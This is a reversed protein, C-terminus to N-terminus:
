LLHPPAVHAVQGLTYPPASQSAHAVVRMVSKGVHELFHVKAVSQAPCAVATTTAPSDHTHVHLAVNPPADHSAHLSPKTPYGVHTRAGVVAGMVGDGGSGVAGGVGGGGTMTAVVAGGVTATVGDGVSTAVGDVSVGGGVGAGVVLAGVVGDGVCAATDDLLGVGATFVGDGEAGVAAPVSLWGSM